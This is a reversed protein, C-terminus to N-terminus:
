LLLRYEKILGRPILPLPRFSQISASLSHSSRAGEYLLLGAELSKRGKDRRRQRRLRRQVEAGLHLVDVLCGDM